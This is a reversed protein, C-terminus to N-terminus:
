NNAYIIRLASRPEPERLSENSVAWSESLIAMSKHVSAHYELGNPFPINPM